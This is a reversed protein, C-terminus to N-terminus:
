ERFSMDLEKANEEIEQSLNANAEFGGGFAKIVDVISSAMLYTANAYSIKASLLNRRADLYEILPISGNEYRISALTYIKEQAELLAKYNEYNQLSTKRQSLAYRVEAFATKLTNEYTIFAKDKSLKALNVSQYIEGWHFIPMLFKGGVSWAKSGDKVLTDLDGSEFGLLGTLSLSPLFASRAVGVLYNQQTLRSLAANIDPRQLLITSSIGEPLSKAFHTFKQYNEEKYLVDDLDSATLIKLAKLYNEKTDIANIYQAKVSELEAKSQALEYEGIAGIEYLSRKLEYTQTYAEMTEKYIQMAEYANASNFYMQVVNSIISLRAAVYDFESAKLNEYSANYNDRYKGWLDVEYSLNLGMDFSFAGTKNNPANISSKARNANASADLKPLLDSRDIGLQATAQELNIYAIKLDANNKLAKEVLLNLNSDNFDKWWNKEISINNGMSTFNAEGVKLSPKLSCAGLLFATLIFILSRM